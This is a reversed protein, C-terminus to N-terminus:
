ERMYKDAAEEAAKKALAARLQRDRALGEAAEGMVVRRAQSSVASLRDEAQAITEGEPRAGLDRLVARVFEERGDEEFLYYEVNREYSLQALSKEIVTCVASPTLLFTLSTDSLFWTGVAMLRYTNDSIVGRGVCLRNIDKIKFPTGLTLCLDAILAHVAMSDPAGNVPLTYFEVPTDELRRLLHALPPGIKKM